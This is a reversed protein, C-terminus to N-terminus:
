IFMNQLLFKKIFKLENYKKNQAIILNDFKKFFNGIKKQGKKNPLSIYKNEMNSKTIHIMTSGNTNRLLQDRDEKLFEYVFFKDVNNKLIIKWIHYHYIVKKGTWIHPGFTASWTYLLDGKIAYKNTKLELNSFYWKDNTYFNGVRLVPYKGSNLLENRKYARGNLLSAISNLKEQKWKDTFGKFRLKPYLSKNAFMNQMLAKKLLKLEEYKREQLDLIKNVIKIINGIRQQEKNNTTIILETKFFDQTPINLLGHNRAGEAAYKTVEKYWCKTDYYASLFNSNINEPKFIIYLTSLIGVDYYDLRKIVGLPHGKSYSKNYAFEGKEILYYKAINKGAINKNFFKKQDVLGYQASITLVLTSKLNKNKRVIRKAIDGLKRQEWVFFKRYFAWM